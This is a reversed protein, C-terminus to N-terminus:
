SNLIRTFKKQGLGLVQHIEGKHEIFSTPTFKLKLEDFEKLAENDEKINKEVYDIDQENLWNKLLSCPNCGTQTFVTIKTM